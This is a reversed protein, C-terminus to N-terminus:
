KIIVKEIKVSSGSVIKLYYIGKAYKSLDVEVAKDANLTEIIQGTTNLVSIEVEEDIGYINFLGSNPNPFVRLNSM